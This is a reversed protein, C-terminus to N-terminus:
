WKYNGFETATILRTNQSGTLHFSKWKQIQKLIKSIQEKKDHDKRHMVKIRSIKNFAKLGIKMQRYKARNNIETTIFYYKNANVAGKYDM